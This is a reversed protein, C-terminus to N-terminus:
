RCTVTSSIPPGAAGKNDQPYYTLTVSSGSLTLQEGVTQPSSSIDTILANNLNIVYYRLPNGGAKVFEIVVNNLPTGNVAASWLLPTASDLYKTLTISCLSPGRTQRFSQVVSQLDIWNQHRAEVSEGPIGPIQLFANTTVQANASSAGALSVFACVALFATRVTHRLHNPM